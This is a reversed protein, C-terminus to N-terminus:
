FIPILTARSNVWKLQPIDASASPIAVLEKLFEMDTAFACVSVCMSVILTAARKM